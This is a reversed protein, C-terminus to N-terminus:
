GRKIGNVLPQLRRAINEGMEIMGDDAPHLIDTTHGGIDVLMEPGELLSVNPHECAYV